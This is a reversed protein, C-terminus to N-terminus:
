YGSDVTLVINAPEEGGANGFRKAWMVAGSSDLRVLSYDSAANIVTSYGSLIYGGNHIEQATNHGYTAYLWQNQFFIEFNTQAIANIQILLFASLVLKM